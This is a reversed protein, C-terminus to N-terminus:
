HLTSKIYFLLVYYSSKFSSSMLIEACKMDHVYFQQVHAGTPVAYFLLFTTKWCILHSYFGERISYFISQLISYFLIFYFLISYFLISNQTKSTKWDETKFCALPWFTNWFVERYPSTHITAIHLLIYTTYLVFEVCM